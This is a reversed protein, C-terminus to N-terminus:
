NGVGCSPLEDDCDTFVCYNHTRLEDSNLNCARDTRVELTATACNKSSAVNDCVTQNLRGPVCQDSCEGSVKSGCAWSPGTMVLVAFMRVIMTQSM